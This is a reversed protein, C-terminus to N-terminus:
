AAIKKLLRRRAIPLITEEFPFDLESEFLYVAPNPLDTFERTLEIKIAAPSIFQIESMTYTKVPNIKMASSSNKDLSIFPIEYRFIHVKEGRGDNILFYGENKYIPLLGIEEIKLNQKVFSYIAKGESVAEMIKPYAWNIFDFVKDMDTDPPTEKISTGVSDTMATNDNKQPFMKELQSRQGVIEGLLKGIELLETLAPYLRNRHLQQYYKQLSGLVLYQSLENDNVASIFTELTIKRM